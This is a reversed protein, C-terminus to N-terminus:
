KGNPILVDRKKRVDDKKVIVVIGGHLLSSPRTGRRHDILTPSTIKNIRKNRMCITHLSIDNRKKNVKRSYIDLIPKELYLDPKM